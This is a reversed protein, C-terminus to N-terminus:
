EIVKHMSMVIDIDKVDDIQMNNIETICDTFPACNKIIVKKNTNNVAAGAAVINSITITGNVLIYANSYDCLNSRTMSTKFRINSSDYKGKPEDNTEVWNRTRFKSPPNTKDDLLKMIKQCEM